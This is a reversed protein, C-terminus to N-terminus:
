GAAWEQRWYMVSVIFMLLLVIASLVCYPCIAFIVFLEIYTLYASYLLGALSIGLVLMAGADDLFDLREKFVLILLMTLYAAAGFAAIPIGGIESFPSSNVASCDGVGYCAAVEDSFKLWTLYLSDLLGISALVILLKRYM